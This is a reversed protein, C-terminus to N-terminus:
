NLHITGGRIINNASARSVLERGNIVIDGEKKLVISARGCKILLENDATITQTNKEAGPEDKDAAVHMFGMILPKYARGEEFMLAVERGRHSPEIAPVSKAPLPRDYPNCDFDVVPGSNKVDVIRGVVVGSIGAADGTDEAIASLINEPEQRNKDERIFDSSDNQEQQKKGSKARYKYM